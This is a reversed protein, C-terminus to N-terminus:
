KTLAGTTDFLKTKVGVVSSTDAVLLFRKFFSKQTRRVKSDKTEKSKLNVKV